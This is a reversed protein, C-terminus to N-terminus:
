SKSKGGECSPRQNVKVMSVTMHCTLVQRDLTHICLTLSHFVFLGRNMSVNLVEQIRCILFLCQLRLVNRQMGIKYDPMPSSEYAIFIRVALVFGLVQVALHLSIPERIYSFAGSNCADQSMLSGIESCWATSNHMHMGCFKVFILTRFIRRNLDNKTVCCHVM